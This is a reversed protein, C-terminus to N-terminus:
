RPNYAYGTVAAAMAVAYAAGLHSEFLEGSPNTNTM